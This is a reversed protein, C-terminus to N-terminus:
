AMGKQTPSFDKRNNPIDDEDEQLSYDLLRNYKIKVLCVSQNKNQSCCICAYKVILGTSGDCFM